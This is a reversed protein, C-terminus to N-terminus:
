SATRPLHRSGAVHTGTGGLRPQCLGAAPQISSWPVIATTTGSVLAIASASGNVTATVTTSGLATNVLATGTAASWTQSGEGIRAYVSYTHGNILTLSGSEPTATALNLSWNGGAPTVAYTATLSGNAQDTVTVKFQQGALLTAAGSLTPTITNTSISKVQLGGTAITIAGTTSASLTSGRKIQAIVTYTQGNVLTMAGSQATATGMDLTWDGNGAPTVAYTVTNSGDTVSVQLQQGSLVNATGTLIPTTSNVTASNLTLGGFSLNVHPTGGAITALSTSGLTGSIDFDANALVAPQAGSRGIRNDGAGYDSDGPNKVVTYNFPFGAFPSSREVLASSSNISLTGTDFALTGSAQADLVGLVVAANFTSSKTHIRADFQNLQVSGIGFDFTAGYHVDAILTVGAGAQFDFGLPKLEDGFGFRQVFERSLSLNVTLSDGSTSFSISPNGAANDVLSELNSYAGRGNLYDGLRDMLGGMTHTGSTSLYDDLVTSGATTRFALLDGITRGDATRILGNFPLDALPMQDSLESSIDLQGGLNTAARFAAQAGSVNIVTTTDGSKSPTVSSLLYDYAATDTVLTVTEILGTNKELIWDGGLAATGTRNESAAVDAGTLTALRDVFAAGTEGAAVNCGYVLLDADVTLGRSWSMLRDAYADVNGADLVATGLQLEGAEGHSLIHVARLPQNQYQNLWNAIQDVGDSALDLVVVEVKAADPLGRGQLAQDLLKQYDAVRPDVFVVENPRTSEATQQGAQGILSAAAMSSLDIAASGPGGSLLLAQQGSLQAQTAADILVQQSSTPPPPVVLAEASLLVRPEIAEVVMQERVQARAKRPRSVAPLGLMRRLRQAANVHTSLKRATTTKM